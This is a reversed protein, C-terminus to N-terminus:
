SAQLMAKRGEDYYSERVRQVFLRRGLVMVIVLVIGSILVTVMTAYQIVTIALACAIASALYMIMVNVLINKTQRTVILGVETFLLVIIASQIFVLVELATMETYEVDVIQNEFCYGTVLYLMGFSVVTTVVRRIGDMRVGMQMLRVGRSSTKMYELAKNDKAAVAFLMFIDLIYEVIVIASVCLVISLIDVGYIGPISYWAGSIAVVVVPYLIYVMPIMWKRPFFLHYMRIADKM